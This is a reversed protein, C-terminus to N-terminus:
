PTGIVLYSCTVESDGASGDVKWSKLTVTTGSINATCYAEENSAADTSQTCYAATVAGLGHSVTQTTTFTATGAVAKYANALGLPRLGSYTIGGSATLNGSGDIQVVPTANKRAEFVNSVGANNVYFAPTATGVATPAAVAAPANVLGGGSSFGTYTASGDNNVSFVPTANKRLELLNGRAGTSDIVFVPTATAVTTPATIRVLGENGELLIRQTSGGDSYMVIDHGNWVEVCNAPGEACLIDIREYQAKQPPQAGKPQCGVVSFSLLCLAVIILIRISTKM